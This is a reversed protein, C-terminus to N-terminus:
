ATEARLRAVGGAGAAEPSTLADLRQDFAAVLTTPGDTAPVEGAQTAELATLVAQAVPEDFVDEDRLMVVHAAVIESLARWMARDTGTSGQDTM